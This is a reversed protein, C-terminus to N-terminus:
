TRHSLVAQGIATDLDALLDRMSPPAAELLRRLHAAVSYAAGDLLWGDLRCSQCIGAVALEFPTLEEYKRLKTSLRMWSWAAVNM